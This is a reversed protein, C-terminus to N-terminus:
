FASAYRFGKSPRPPPPPPLPPCPGPPDVPSAPLCTPLYTYTPGHVSSWPRVPLGLPPLSAPLAPRPPCAPHVPLSAPLRPWTRPPFMMCPVEWLRPTLCQDSLIVIPAWFLILSFSICKHIMNEIYVLYLSKKRVHLAGLCKERQKEFFSYERPFCNTHPLVLLPSHM